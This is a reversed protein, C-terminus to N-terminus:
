VRGRWYDSNKGGSRIFKLWDKVISWDKESEVSLSIGRQTFGRYFKAKESTNM